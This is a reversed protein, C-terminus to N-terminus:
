NMLHKKFWSHFENYWLQANRPKLVLHGEDPFYLFHSEIGRRQLATFLQMGQEVPVRFDLQGHSVYTPTKFKGAKRSPSWRDYMKQNTWPTGKFEWETFWLEETAGYMSTLDYVGAHCFIAKFRNTNALFWNMMYGGYSAGAAGLRNKDIFPYKKLVFDLGKMLDKYPAGGWDGNVGDTFAQGFGQSGRCNVAVVVFGPASFLATNWRYHFNDAWVGQPGGHVLYIMPYTKAPDFDPPVIIWGQVEAGDFSKFTFTEPAPMDISDLVAKNTETLQRVDSLRTGDYRISMVETPYNQREGLFVLREGDPHLQFGHRYTGLEVTMVTDMHAYQLALMGKLVRLVDGGVAPVEFLSIYPGDQATFLLRKGDKTWLIEGVSRDVGDTLLTTKGNQRDYVKLDYKDAEYGARAMSRYAIYRGDPSYVPQNDNGNNTTTICRPNAGDIGVLWIDNNTSAAIFPDTNKVFAVEKGDPSAVFDQGGGIDIPPTDFPGPTLDRPIGGAAPVAFVHSYKDDKWSNWVRYPLKSIRRAKVPNKEKEEDRVRNCADDPCDPYVSSSYLFHSGTPTWEFADIGTSINTVRRQASGDPNMTWIQRGNERSSIFAISGGDPSWRPRADAGPADTLRLPTGGDIAVRWIDSNSTNTELRYYTVVYAIHAGDPSIRADSVRGFRYMEEFTFPHKPTDEMLEIKEVKSQAQMSVALLLLLAVFRFRTM